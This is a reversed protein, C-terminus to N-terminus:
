LRFKYPNNSDYRHLLTDKKLFNSLPLYNLTLEISLVRNLIRGKLGILILGFDYVSSRM